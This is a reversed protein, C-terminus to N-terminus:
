LSLESSPEYDRVSVVELDEECFVCIHSEGDFHQIIGTYGLVEKVAKNFAAPQGAFFDNSIMYFVQRLPADDIGTLNEILERLTRKYEAPEPCFKTKICDELVPSRGILKEITRYALPVVEDSELLRWDSLKATILTPRVEIGPFSGDPKKAPNCYEEATKQRTTLYFGSGLSDTGFGIFKSDFREVRFPSGHYLKTNKNLM